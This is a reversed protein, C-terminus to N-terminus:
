IPIKDNINAMNIQALENIANFAAISSKPGKVTINKRIINADKHKTYKIFSKIFYSKEFFSILNINSKAKNSGQKYKTNSDFANCSVDADCAPIIVENIGIIM